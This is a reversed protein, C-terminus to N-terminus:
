DRRLAFAYVAQFALIFHEQDHAQLLSELVARDKDLVELTTEAKLEADLRNLAVM